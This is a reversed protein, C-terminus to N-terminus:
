PGDWFLAVIFKRIAIANWQCVIVRNAYITRNAARWGALIHILLLVPM